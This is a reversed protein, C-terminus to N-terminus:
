HMSPRKWCCPWIAGGPGEHSALAQSYRIKEVVRGPVGFQFDFRDKALPTIKVWGSSSDV